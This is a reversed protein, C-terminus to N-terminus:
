LFDCLRELYKLLFLRFFTNSFSPDHVFSDNLPPGWEINSHVVNERNFFYINKLDNLGSAPTLYSNPNKLVYIGITITYLWFISIIYWRSVHSTNALLFIIKFEEYSMRESVILEVKCFLGEESKKKLFIFM